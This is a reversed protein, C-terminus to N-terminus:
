CDRNEGEDIQIKYLKEWYWKANFTSMSKQGYNSTTMLTTILKKKLQNTSPCQTIGSFIWVKVMSLKKSNQPYCPNKSSPIWLMPTSVVPIRLAHSIELPSLCSHSHAFSSVVSRIDASLLIFSLISLWSLHKCENAFSFQSFDPNNM